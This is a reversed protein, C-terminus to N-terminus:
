LRSVYAAVITKSSTVKSTSTEPSVSRISRMRHNDSSVQNKFGKFDKFFLSNLNVSIKIKNENYQIDHLCLILKIQYRLNVSIKFTM